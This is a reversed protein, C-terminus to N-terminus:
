GIAAGTTWADRNFWPKVTITQAAIARTLWLCGRIPSIEGDSLGWSTDDGGLQDPEFM